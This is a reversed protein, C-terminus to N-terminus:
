PLMPLSNISDVCSSRGVLAFFPNTPLIDPLRMVNCLDPLFRRFDLMWAALEGVAM